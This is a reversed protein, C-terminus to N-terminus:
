KGGVIPINKNLVNLFGLQRLRQAFFFMSDYYDFNQRSTVFTANLICDVIQREEKGIKALENDGGYVDLFKIYTDQMLDDITSRDKVVAAISFFVNKKTANYFEDFHAYNAVRVIHSSDIVFLTRYIDPIADRVVKSFDEEKEYPVYLIEDCVLGEFYASDLNRVELYLDNQVVFLISTDRTCEPIINTLSLLVNKKEKENGLRFVITEM